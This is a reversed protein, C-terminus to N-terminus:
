EEDEEDDTDTELFNKAFERAIKGGLASNKLTSYGFGISAAYEKQSPKDGTPRAFATSFTTEGVKLQLEMAGIEPDSKVADAIIPATVTGLAEHFNARYKDLTNMNDITLQHEGKDNPEVKIFPMSQEFQQTLHTVSADSYATKEENLEPRAADANISAILEKVSLLKAM